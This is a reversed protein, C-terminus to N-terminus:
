CNIMLQEWVTLAWLGVMEGFLQSIEPSTVFDGKSGVISEAGKDGYYGGVPSSLAARMYEAFTVPGGRFKIIGEVHRLLDLSGGSSFSRCLRRLFM